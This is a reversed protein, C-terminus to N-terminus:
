DGGELLEDANLPVLGGHRAGYSASASNRTPHRGERLRRAAEAGYATPPRCPQALKRREEGM